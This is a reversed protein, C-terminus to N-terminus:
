ANRLRFALNRMVPRVRLYGNVAGSVWPSNMRTARQHYVLDSGFTSKFRILEPTDAGVMDYSVLDNASAERLMTWHILNNARVAQAGSFSAGDFYYLRGAHVLFMVGAVVEG